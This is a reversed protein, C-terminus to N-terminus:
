DGGAAKVVVEKIGIEQELMAGVTGTDWRSHIKGKNVRNVRSIRSVRNLRHTDKRM